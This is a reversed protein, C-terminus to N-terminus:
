KNGNFTIDILRESKIEKPRFISTQVEPLQPATRIKGFFPIPRFISSQVSLTTRTPIVTESQTIYSTVETETLISTVPKERTPQIELSSFLDWSFPPNTSKFTNDILRGSKIEKPRFISTQVEPIQPATRIKGFFPIPRFINSQVSLTKRTPIVTESQTIYSTVVQIVTETLISTVRNPRTSEIELPSFLDSSTPPNTKIVPELSPTADVEGTNLRNDASFSPTISSNSEFTPLNNQSGTSADTSSRVSINPTPTTPTTTTTERAENLKQNTQSTSAFANETSMPQREESFNPSTIIDSTKAEYSSFPTTTREIIPSNTLLSQSTTASRTVNLPLSTQSTPNGQRILLDNYLSESINLPLSREQRDLTMMVKERPTMDLVKLVFFTVGVCFFIAAVIIVFNM